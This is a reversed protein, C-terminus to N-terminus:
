VIAGHVQGLAGTTYVLYNSWSLKWIAAGICWYYVGYITAGRYSGSLQVLLKQLYGAWVSKAPGHM